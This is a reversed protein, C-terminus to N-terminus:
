QAGGAMDGREGGEQRKKERRPTGSRAQTDAQSTSQQEGYSAAKEKKKQKRPAVVHRARPSDGAAVTRSCRVKQHSPDHHEKAKKNNEAETDGHTEQGTKREKGGGKHKNKEGVGHRTRRPLSAYVRVCVFVCAFLFCSSSFVSLGAHRPASQSTRLYAAVAIAGRGARETTVNPKGHAGSVHRLLFAASSGKRFLTGSFRRPLPM